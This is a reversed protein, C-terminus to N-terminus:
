IALLFDTVEDPTMRAGEAKHEEYSQEGLEETTQRTIREVHPVADWRMAHGERAIIESAGMATAVREYRRLAVDIGAGFALLNQHQTLSSRTEEDLVRALTVRYDDIRSVDGLGAECFIRFLRVGHQSSEYGLREYLKEATELQRHAEELDGQYWEFGARQLALGALRSDSGVERTASEADVFLDRAEDPDGEPDRHHALNALALSVMLRDDRRRAVELLENQYSTYVENREGAGGNWLITLSLGNLAMPFDPILAPDTGAAELRRYLEVSEDLLRIARDLQGSFSLFMGYLYLIRARFHDAVTDDVREYIQEAWGLLESWGGGLIGTTRAFVTLAGVATEAEGAGIAWAMAQRLNGVESGLRRVLDQGEESAVKNASVLASFGAFWEAHRRRWFEGEGSTDLRDRAFQRITELLRYRAHGDLDEVVILSKDVLGPLLEIVDLQGIPGGICVETVSEFDFGEQFVSLRTFLVAEAEDLLRYSWEITANLTQQRPLATRSGGTLLRFRQDLHEAIESTSFSRLRAAALEIALPMGDLRRCIEAVAPANDSTLRYDPRSAAGREVFLRVSDASGVQDTDDGDPLSMSRLRYTVEGPVGLLERSTAVVTLQPLRSVLDHVLAAVADLLHECNDVIMLATKDALHDLLADRPEVGSPQEVGVAASMAPEVTEPDTIAALEVLWVGDRYEPTTHAAAQLAIRTKGAGGVGTLTVLRSGRVLDIVEELERDRGIFSSPLTPLNNPAADVTRLPPFETLAEDYDLQFIRESQSLDRLRHEGLDRLSIDDGDVLESTAQSVLVQRGHGAAMLRATRSICLGVYDGDREEAEGSHIGMRVSLPGIEEHEVESLHEQIRCAAGLAADASDFVAAVGDGTHKFVHGHHEDVASYTLEDHLGLAVKMTESHQEWLRTSGVIDTLLFTAM